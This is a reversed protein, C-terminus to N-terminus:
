RTPAFFIGIPPRRPERGIWVRRAGPSAYWEVAATREATSAIAEVHAALMSIEETGCSTLAFVSGGATVLEAVQSGDAVSGVELLGCRHFRSFRHDRVRARAGGGDALLERSLLDRLM